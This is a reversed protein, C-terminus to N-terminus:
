FLNEKIVEKSFSSKFMKGNGELSIFKSMLEPQYLSINMKLDGKLLYPYFNAGFAIKNSKKDIKEVLYDWDIEKPKARGIASYPLLVFYDIKDKYEEFINSFYDISQKDSIIIHFNLKIKNDLLLQVAPRWYDRLHPHCSIAVGGCYKKTSTLLNDIFEQYNKIWMGNTTYNPTIDFEEKLVQLLQNFDYHSTPEGGGLACQFPLQNITMSKFFSRLKVIINDYDKDSQNSDM